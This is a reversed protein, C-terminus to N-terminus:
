QGLDDWRVAWIGSHEPELEVEMRLELFEAMGYTQYERM